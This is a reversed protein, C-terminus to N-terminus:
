RVGRDAGLIFAAKKRFIRRKEEFYCESCSCWGHEANYRAHTPRMLVRAGCVCRYWWRPTVDGRTRLYDPGREVAVLM